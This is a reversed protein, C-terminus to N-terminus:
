QENLPLTLGGNTRLIVTSGGNDPAPFNLSGMSAPSPKGDGGNTPSTGGPKGPSQAQAPSRSTRGAPGANPGRHIPDPAGYRAAEIERELLVVMDPSKTGLTDPPNCAPSTFLVTVQNGRSATSTSSSSGSVSASVYLNQPTSLTGNVSRTDNGTASVNFVAQASCVNLGLPVGGNAEKLVLSQRRAAYISTVTDVLAAQLTLGSPNDVVAKSAGGCGTLLFALAVTASYATRDM